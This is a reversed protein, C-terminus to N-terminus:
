NSSRRFLPFKNISELSVGQPKGFGLHFIFSNCIFSISITLTCFKNVHVIYIYFFSLNLMKNLSFALVMVCCSGQELM